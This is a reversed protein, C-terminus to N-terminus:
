PRRRPALSRQQRGALYTHFEDFTRVRTGVAPVEPWAGEGGLLLDVGHEKCADGLRRAFRDLKRRDKSARSASVAVLEAGDEALFTLVDEIPTNRGSWRSRLGAERVCLEALALGLVHEDGEVMTLLALPAAPSVSLGESIRTLARHLRESAMHEEIISLEGREWRAGIERLVAGVLSAARHWSGANGRLLLLAAEIEYGSESRLLRDVWAAADTHAGDPETGSQEKLFAVLETQRFRRHGGATKVCPLLGLDAWRKIATPGVGAHAAAERTTLLIEM